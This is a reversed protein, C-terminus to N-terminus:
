PSLFLIQKFDSDGYMGTKYIWLFISTSLQLEFSIRTVLTNAIQVDILFTSIHFVVWRAYINMKKYTDYITCSYKDKESFTYQQSINM